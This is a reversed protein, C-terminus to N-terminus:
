CSLGAIEELEARRSESLGVRVEEKEACQDSFWECQLSTQEREHHSM